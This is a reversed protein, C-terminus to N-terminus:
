HLVERRPQFYGSLRSSSDASSISLSITSQGPPFSFLKPATGLFAYKNAGSADVITATKTNIIRKDGSVMSETYTFGVGSLSLSTLTSKGEITWVPFADVDGPNDITFTGLVSDTKVKLKSLEPLLGTTSTDYGLSFSVLQQSTWFPDPAQLTLVWRAFTEGAEAGFQTEAGGTYHVEMDYSTGDSYKAILKPTGRRDNLAAALRRLKTEVDTRDSGIVTIPLDLDRVGRRTSRWIGGDGASNTIRVDTPPIGIGRFGTTLYYDATGDLPIQDGNAGSIVFNLTVM